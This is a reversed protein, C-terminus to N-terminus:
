ETDIASTKTDRYNRYWRISWLIFALAAFILGALTLWAAALQAWQPLLEFM